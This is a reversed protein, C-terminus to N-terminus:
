QGRFDVKYGSGHVSVIYKSYDPGVKQRIRRIVSRISNVFFVAPAEEGFSGYYLSEHEFTRGPHSMLMRLCHFEGRTLHIDRGGASVNKGLLDLHIGKFEIESDSEGVIREVEEFGGYHRFLAYEMMMSIEEVSRPFPFYEHAGNRLSAVMDVRNYKHSFVVIPLDSVNSIAKLTSLLDEELYDASIAILHYRTNKLLGVAESADRAIFLYGNYKEWEAKLTKFRKTNECICLICYLM